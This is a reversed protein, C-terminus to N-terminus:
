PAVARCGAAWPRVYAERIAAPAAVSRECVAGTAVEFLAVLPSDTQRGASAMARHGAAEPLGVAPVAFRAVAATSPPESKM